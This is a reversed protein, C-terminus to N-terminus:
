SLKGMTRGHLGGIFSLISLKPSGPARNKICSEMEEQSPPEGGRLKRQFIMNCLAYASSLKVDVFLKICNFM